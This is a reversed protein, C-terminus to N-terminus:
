LIKYILEKLLDENSMQYSGVGKGKLDMERLTKLIASVKKLPYHHSATIYENVFYPNIGLSSAVNKTSHDSLSHFQMLQSFFTHLIGITVVYSHEKPNQYFYQVIRLIKEINREALAKKLEFVNYDKSIGIHKEIIEPTIEAGKDLVLALKELEKDIKSLDTGLYEGLLHSAIPSCQFGKKQANTRIWNPVQNDYMKKTELIVATKKLAKYLAKRKDLKKNKYAIILVTTLQPNEAYDSLNDIVRSLHQAEKVVVVQYDAGMPFQKAQNVIQELKSDKGYFIVKNFAEEHEELVKSPIFDCLKDIYYPEDGMLFYIPKFNKNKVDLAIKNVEEM